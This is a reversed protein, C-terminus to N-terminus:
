SANPAARKSVVPRQGVFLLYPSFSRGSLRFGVLSLTKAIGTVLHSLAAVTKGTFWTGVWGSNGWVRFTGHYDNFLIRYGLDVFVKFTAPQMVDVNHNDLDPRDFIYHWLYQFGTFNPVLIAVYGGPRVYRHHCQLIEELEGGRFHEILGFSWVVDFERGIQFEFIDGKYLTASKDIAALTELFSEADDSYDIGFPIWQTGDMLAASHQGPSCGLELIELPADPLAAAIVDMWEQRRRIRKLAQRNRVPARQSWRSKDTLRM